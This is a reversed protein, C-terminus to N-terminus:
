FEAASPTAEVRSLRQRGPEQSAPELSRSIIPSQLQRNRHQAPLAFIVAAGGAFLGAAAYSAAALPMYNFACGFEQGVQPCAGSPGERGHLANFAVGLFLAGVTLAASSIGVGLRWPTLRKGGSVKEQSGTVVPATSPSHKAPLSPLALASEAEKVFLQLKAKDKPQDIDPWARKYLLLSQAINGQRFQSRGLLVLLRPDPVRSYAAEYLDIAMAFDKRGNHALQGERYLRQCEPDEDCSPGAALGRASWLLVTALIMVQKTSM